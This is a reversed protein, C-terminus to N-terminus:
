KPMVPRIYNGYERGEGWGGTDKNGSHFGIYYGRFYKGGMDNFPIAIESAWLHIKKDGVPIFISNHNSGTIIYGNIGNYNGWEWNCKERLEKLEAYTPMRWNGGWSVHAVDYNTGKIDMGIDIYSETNSDYYLYNKKDYKTKPSTEGWAYKDGYQEPSEAGVNCSAWKVSLGLDVAKESSVQTNNDKKETFEVYDINDMNYEVTQGNKYHINMTQSWGTFSCLVFASIIFYRKM